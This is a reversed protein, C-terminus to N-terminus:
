LNSPNQSSNGEAENVFYVQKVVEAANCLRDSQASPPHVKNAIKFSSTNQKSTKINTRTLDRNVGCLKERKGKSARLSLLKTVIVKLLPYGFLIDILLSLLPLYIRVAFIIRFTILPMLIRVSCLCTFQM